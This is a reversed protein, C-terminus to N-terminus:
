WGAGASHDFLTGYNTTGGAKSAIMIDGDDGKGTGDSMWIICEGESPEAPDSTRELLKLVSVSPSVFEPSSTPSVDQDIYSHDSGTGSIHSDIQAHTNSGAGSFSDHSLAYISSPSSITVDTFEADHAELAVKYWNVDAAGYDQWYDEHAYHDPWYTAHWYGPTLNDPAAAAGYNSWYDDHWYSEPWYTAHWYGQTLLAM